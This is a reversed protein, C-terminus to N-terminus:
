DEDKLIRLKKGKSNDPNLSDLLSPRTKQDGANEAKAQKEVQQESQASSEPNTKQADSEM